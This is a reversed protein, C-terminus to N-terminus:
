RVGERAAELAVVIQPTWSRLAKIRRSYRQLPFELTFGLAGLIQHCDKAVGAATGVARRVVFESPLDEAAMQLGETATAADALKKAVSDLASLPKGFAIRNQAHNLALELAGAALGATYGTMAAYWADVSASPVTQPAIPTTSVMSVGQADIYNVPTADVVEVLQAAGRGCLWVTDGPQSYRALTVDGNESSAVAVGHGLLADICDVSVLARGLEVAGAGLFERGQPESALDFWGARSLNERVAADRDDSPRDPAWSGTTPFSSCISKVSSAFERVDDKTMTVNETM